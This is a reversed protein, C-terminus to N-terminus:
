ACMGRRKKEIFSDRNNVCYIKVYLPASPETSNRTENGYKKIRHIVLLNVEYHRVAAISMGRDLDDLM